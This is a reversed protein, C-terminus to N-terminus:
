PEGPRDRRRARNEERKALMHAKDYSMGAKMKEAEYCEHLVIYPWEVEDIEADIWIENRSIFRYRFGNGGQSFDSDYVNRVHTGDVLM